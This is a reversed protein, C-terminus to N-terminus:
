SFPKEERELSLCKRKAAWCSGEGEGRKGGEQGEIRNATMIGRKLCGM